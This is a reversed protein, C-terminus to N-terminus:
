RSDEDDAHRALRITHVHQAHHLIHSISCIEGISLNSGFTRLPGLHLQAEVRWEIAFSTRM